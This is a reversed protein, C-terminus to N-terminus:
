LTEKRQVTRRTPRGEFACIVSAVAEMLEPSQAINTPVMGASLLLRIRDSRDLGLAYAIAEVSERTPFRTGSEYRSFATHNMDARDALGHQSLGSQKRYYNLATAFTM